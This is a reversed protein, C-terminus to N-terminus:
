DTNDHAYRGDPHLKIFDIAFRGPIRKVGNIWFEVRRHGKPWYPDYVATWPGGQLPKGLVVTTRKIIATVLTDSMVTSDSAATFELVNSLNDDPLVAPVPFELYLTVTENPVIIGPKESHGLRTVLDQNSATFFRNFTKKGQVKLGILKVTDTLSNTINIEYYLWERRDIKVKEPQHLITLKVPRQSQARTSFFFLALFTFSLVCIKLKLTPQFLNKITYMM